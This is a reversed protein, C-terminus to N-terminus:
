GVIFQVSSAKFTAWVKSGKQLNLERLASHSILAALIFGCNIIVETGHRVPILEIINGEFLNRASSNIKENSLLIDGAPISIHGKGRHEPTPLCIQNGGEIKAWALGEGPGPLIECPYFNRIGAFRAVFEDAPQLFVEHIPGAQKIQGNQIIALHTAVSLAEDPDHTVHIIPLNPQRINRLVDYFSQRINADLGTLPEDLLLLRPQMALTRAIAVRRAEGGSIDIPRRHVLHLIGTLEALRKVEADIEIPSKHLLRLPYAINQAVSFHPFLAVDQFVMGFRRQHAPLLTINEEHFIISGESVRRLGALLELFMSKGAGSPGAIIWYEGGHITLSLPGLVFDGAKHKIEKIVLM